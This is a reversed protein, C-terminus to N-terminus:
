AADNFFTAEIHTGMSDVLEIKMLKGGNRTTKLDSKQVVRAKIVWDRTFTSLAKIPTFNDM